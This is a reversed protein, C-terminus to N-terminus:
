TQTLRVVLLPDDLVTRLDLLVRDDKIRAIVGAARLQTQLSAISRTVGDSSLAIL